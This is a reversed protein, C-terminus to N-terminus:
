FLIFFNNIFIATLNLKVLHIFTFKEMLSDSIVKSIVELTDKFYDVSFWLLGAKYFSIYGPKNTLPLWNIKISDKGCYDYFAIYDLKDNSDFYMWKGIKINNYILGCFKSKTLEDYYVAREAMCSTDISSLVKEALLLENNFSSITESVQAVSIFNGGLVFFVAFVLKNKRQMM